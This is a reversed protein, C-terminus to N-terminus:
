AGGTGGLSGVLHRALYLGVSSPRLGILVGARDVLEHVLDSALSARVSRYPRLIGAGGRYGAPGECYRRRRGGYPGVRPGKARGSSRSLTFTSALYNSLTTPGVSRMTATASRKQTISAIRGSATPPRCSTSIQHSGNLMGEASGEFRLPAVSAGTRYVAHTWLSRRIPRAEPHELVAPAV